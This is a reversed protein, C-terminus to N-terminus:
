LWSGGTVGNLVESLERREVYGPRESRPQAAQGPRLLLERLGWPALVNAERSRLRDRGSAGRGGIWWLAWAFFRSM